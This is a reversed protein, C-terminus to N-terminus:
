QNKLYKIRNKITNLLENNKKNETIKESMIDVTNQKDDTNKNFTHLKEKLINLYSLLASKEKELKNIVPKYEDENKNIIETIRNQMLKFRKHCRDYDNQLFIDVTAINHEIDNIKKTINFITKKIIAFESKKATLISKYEKYNSPLPQITIKEKIYKEKNFKTIENELKGINKRIQNYKNDLVLYDHDPNESNLNIYYREKTYESLQKNLDNILDQKALITSKLLRRNKNNSNRIKVKKLFENRNEIKQKKLYKINNNIKNLEMKCLHLEAQQQCLNKIEDKLELNYELLLDTKKNQIREKETEFITKEKSLIKNKEKNFLNINAINDVIEKEITNLLKSKENIALKIDNYNQIEENQLNVKVALNNVYEELNNIEEKINIDM